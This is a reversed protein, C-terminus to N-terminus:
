AHLIFPSQRFDDPLVTGHAAFVMQHYIDQAFRSDAALGAADDADKTIRPLLAKRAFARLVPSCERLALIKLYAPAKRSDGKRIELLIHTLARKVRALTFARTVICDCLEECSMTFPAAALIRAALDPSVDEYVTLDEGTYAITRLKAMLPAAMTEPGLAFSYDETGAYRGERVAKRISSASPFCPQGVSESGGEATGILVEGRYEEDHYAAGVRKVALPRIGAAGAASKLAKLYEVALMNNPTAIVAAMAPDRAELAATLAAAYSRGERMFAKADETLLPDSLAEATRELLDIDDTETGFSLTDICGCAALLGVGGRAFGEASACAYAPPLELVLDAGGRVAAEARVYKDLFAPEGRQVFPGSMVCVIGDAGSRRRTEEIHYAHGAHFPDYEAIIGAIKAM